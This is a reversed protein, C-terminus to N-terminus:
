LIAMSMSLLCSRPLVLHSTLAWSNSGCSSRNVGSLINERCCYSRAEQSCISSCLHLVFSRSSVHQSTLIREQKHHPLKQYEKLLFEASHPVLYKLAGIFSLICHMAANLLTAANLVRRFFAAAFACENSGCRLLECYYWAWYSRRIIDDDQLM